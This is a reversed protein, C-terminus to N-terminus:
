RREGGGEGGEAQAARPPSDVVIDEDVDSGGGAPETGAPKSTGAPQPEIVATTPEWAPDVAPGAAAAAAREWAEASARRM